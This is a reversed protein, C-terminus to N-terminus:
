DSSSSSSSGSGKKSKKKKGADAEQVLIEIYGLFLVGAGGDFFIEVEFEGDTVDTMETDHTTRGHNEGPVQATKLKREGNITVTITCPDM